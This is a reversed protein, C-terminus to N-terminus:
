AVVKIKCCNEDRLHALFLLWSKGNHEGVWGNDKKEAIMKLGKDGASTDTLFEVELKRATRPIRNAM